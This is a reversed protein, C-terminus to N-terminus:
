VKVKCKGVHKLFDAKNLIKNRCRPCKKYFKMRYKKQHLELTAPSPWYKECVLCMVGGVTQVGVDEEEAAEEEANDVEVEEVEVEDENMVLEEGDGNMVVEEDGDGNMEEEEVDGNMVEEEVQNHRENQHAQLAAEDAFAKFACQPCEWVWQNMLRKWDEWSDM